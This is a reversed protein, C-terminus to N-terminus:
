EKTVSASLSPFRGAFHANCEDLTGRTWQEQPLDCKPNGDRLVRGETPEDMEVRGCLGCWRLRPSHAMAGAGRKRGTLTAVTMKGDDTSGLRFRHLRGDQDQQQLNARHDEPGPRRCLFGDRRASHPSLLARCIDSGALGVVRDREVRAGLRDGARVRIFAPVARLSSNGSRSVAGCGRPPASSQDLDSDQM